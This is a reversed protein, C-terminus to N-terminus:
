GENKQYLRELPDVPLRDAIGAIEEAERWRDELAALEGELARRETEEHLAMELALMAAPSARDPRSAGQGQLHKTMSLRKEVLTLSGGAVGTLLRGPTGFREVFELAGRLQTESAGPANVRVMARALLDYAASGSLVIGRAAAHGSLRTLLRSRVDFVKPLVVNLDADADLRFRAGRLHKERILVAAGTASTGAAIRYVVQKQRARVRFGYAGPAALGMTMGLAIGVWHRRRRGRLEAGYRWAALEGPLADGVRVLRTGEPLQAVGVNVSQVRLRTGQFREEAGEVAEWREEIPALNWRGCAPCVAWLQGKWADFALVNGVPFTELVENRGLHHSCFICSSYM